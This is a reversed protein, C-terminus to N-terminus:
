IFKINTVNMLCYDLVKKNDRIKYYTDIKANFTIQRSISSKYFKFENKFNSSYLWCHNIKISDIEVHNLKVIQKGNAKTIYNVQATVQQITGNLEAIQTRSM